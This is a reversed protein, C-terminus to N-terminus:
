TLVTESLWTAIRTHNWASFIQTKLFQNNSQNKLAIWKLFGFCPGITVFKLSDSLQIFICVFFLAWQSNFSHCKIVSYNTVQMAVFPVNSGLNDKLFIVTCLDDRILFALLISISNGGRYSAAGTFITWSRIVRARIRNNDITQNLIRAVGLWKHSKM